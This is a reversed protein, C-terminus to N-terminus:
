ILSAADEDTIITVNNHLHLVTAPLQPNITKTNYLQKIAKAKSKGLALLIINKSQLILEVGITLAKTPVESIDDFFRSNAEITETTLEEVHTFRSLEINPMNFSIHGDSGIGLFITDFGGHQKILNTYRDCEVELNNSLGNLCHTNESKINTHKYLHEHLFYYYSQNHMKDLGVYEDMNFSVINTMDYENKKYAEVMYEFCGVPTSGTPICIKAYPNEKIDEIIMKACASSAQKEDCYVKWKM